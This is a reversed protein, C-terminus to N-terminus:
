FAIERLRKRFSWANGQKVYRDTALSCCVVIGRVPKPIALDTGWEVIATDGRIRVSQVVVFYVISRTEDAEQQLAAQSRLIWGNLGELAVEPVKVGSRGIEERVAVNQIKLLKGDPISNPQSHARRLLASLVADVSTTNSNNREALSLRFAIGLYCEGREPVFALLILIPTLLNM